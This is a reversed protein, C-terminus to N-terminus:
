FRFKYVASDGSAYFQEKLRKCLSIYAGLFNHLSGTLHAPLNMNECQRESALPCDNEEDLLYEWASIKEELSVRNSNWIIFAAQQPTYRKNFGIKKWYDAVDKSNLYETIDFM